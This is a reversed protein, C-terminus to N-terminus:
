STVVLTQNYTGSGATVEGKLAYTGTVTATGPCLFNSGSSIKNVTANKLGAQAEPSTTVPRNANTGNWANATISGGYYCTIGGFINVVAKVKFNALTLTADRGGAVPAYTVNGGNWPVVSTITSSLAGSCGTSPPSSFSAATINLGTGNSAISGLLTSSTCTGSGLTTSVTATGLLSGQVKGSYAAGTTTGRRITTTAASASPVAVLAATAAVATFAALTKIQPM